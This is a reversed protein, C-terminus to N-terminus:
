NTCGFIKLKGFESKSNQKVYVVYLGLVPKNNYKVMDFLVNPKKSNNDLLFIYYYM